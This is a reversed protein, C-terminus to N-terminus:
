PIHLQARIINAKTFLRSGPDHLNGLIDIPNFGPIKIQLSTLPGGPPMGNVVMLKYTEVFDEDPAVTAFISAWEGGYIKALDTDACSTCGGNLDNVINSLVPRRRPIAEPNTEGFTHFGRQHHQVQWSIVSFPDGGQVPQVPNLGATNIISDYWIIHGMEHAMIGLLAIATKAAALSPAPPDPSATFTITDTWGGVRRRAVARKPRMMAPPTLLSTLVSHEYDAYPQTNLALTTLLKASIGIHERFRGPGIPFLRERMGWAIPISPDPDTDVYIAQLSCLSDQFFTPAVSYAASIAAVADPSPPDALFQTPDSYACPQGPVCNGYGVPSFGPSGPSAPSIQHIIRTIDCGQVAIPAPPPPAPPACAALLLLFGGAVPLFTSRIM